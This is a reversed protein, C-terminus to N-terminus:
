NVLLEETLTNRYVEYSLIRHDYYHLMIRYRREDLPCNEPANSGWVSPIPGVAVGLLPCIPRLRRDEDTTKPLIAEVKFSRQFSYHPSSPRTLTILAVRGCLSGAVVLFLEPVHLVNTLREPQFPIRPMRARPPKKQYIANKFMIGINDLDGGLLEIDVGYMRMVSSGDALRLKAKAGDELAKRCKKKRKNPPVRGQSEDAAEDQVSNWDKSHDVKPDYWDRPLENQWHPALDFQQARNNRVWPHRTSNNKIYEVAKCIGIYHGYQAHNVYVAEAPDLGLSDRFTTTSLFSSEPLVLVGWGRPIEHQITFHPTREAVTKYHIRHLGEIFWSPTYSWISFVWLKGSIDVALVETAEGDAGSGFAVSPINSGKDLTEMIFHCNHRRQLLLPRHSSDKELIDLEPQILRGFPESLSLEIVKGDLSRRIPQFLNDGPLPEADELYSVPNASTLAFAFVHVEHKNNGVAILRSKKHVALGWASKGVNQHFFPMVPAPKNPLNGSELRVLAHEIHSSYYAIVDGDDYSLLLIEEDGLDGVIFHNPQHPLCLDLYGGVTISEKTIPPLLVLDPRGPVTHDVCSRVRFIHIASKFAAAYINYRQSLVTLNLRYTSIRPVKYGNIEDEPDSAEESTESATEPTPADDNFGAQDDLDDDDGDGEGHPGYWDGDQNDQDIQDNHDGQDGQDDSMDWDSSYADSSPGLISELDHDASVGPSAGPPLPNNWSSEWPIPDSSRIAYRKRGTRCYCPGIHLDRQTM